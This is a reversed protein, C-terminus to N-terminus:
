LSDPVVYPARYSRTLLANAQADDPFRETAPDFALTRGLRCSVGSLDFKYATAVHEAMRAFTWRAPENGVLTEEAKSFSADEGLRYPINALHCLASSYHAELVPANLDTGKRSRMSAIFNEWRGDGPGIQVDVEPLPAPKNSGAPYFEKGVITGADLHFINGVSQGFFTNNTVHRVEFILQTDGYDFVSVQTNPTEGQDEYTYRGGFSVVRTPLTGGRIGWRAVDMQHVGQNGIDGNGFDWFWHWNYHVLNEHYPQQPAPGLWLDFDLEAPPEQIPKFGISPRSKYCLGRAVHLKGLQGSHIAAIVRRWGPDSRNQTGHQVMRNYKRAAEVAIRGEHINHSIPKEVYVDKGAQCAWLTMLSHWHNPSAISVADVNKDDLVRRFDQVPTPRKGGAEEALQCRSDFLRSDPDALYVVDVDNLKAFSRIHTRGQGHIGFVAVRIRDNAGVAGRVPRALGSVALGAAGAAGTRLFDRRTWFRRPM